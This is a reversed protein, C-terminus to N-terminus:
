KLILPRNRSVVRFPLGFPSFGDRGKAAIFPGDAEPEAPFRPRPRPQLDRIRTGALTLLGLGLLMAVNPEPAPVYSFDDIHLDAALPTVSFGDAGILFTQSTFYTNAAASDFNQLLAGALAPDGPGSIRLGLAIGPVLMLIALAM